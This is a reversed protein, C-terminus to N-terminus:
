RGASPAGDVELEAISWDFHSSEGLNVLRLFRVGREGVWLDLNGDRNEVPAEDQWFIGDVVTPLAERKWRSGDESTEFALMRARDTALHGMRIKVWGLDTPQPFHITFAMGPRQPARSGWRTELKGDLALWESGKGDSAEVSWGVPSLRKMGATVKPAIGDFLVVGALDHRVFRAGYVTLTREWVPAEAEGV